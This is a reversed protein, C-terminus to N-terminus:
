PKPFGYEIRQVISGKNLAYHMIIFAYNLEYHM